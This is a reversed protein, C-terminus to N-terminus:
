KRKRPPSESTSLWFAAAAATFVSYALASKLGTSVTMALAFMVLLVGSGLAFWRTLRGTLLGFGFATEAITAAWGAAPILSAPLFANVKGTYVLFHAMDGWSANPSGPPGWLGFRDAVSSLFAASLALRTFGILLRHRM